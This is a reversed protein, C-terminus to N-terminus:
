KASQAAAKDTIPVTNNPDLLLHAIYKERIRQAKNMIQTDNDTMVRSTPSDVGSGADFLLFAPFVNEPNLYVEEFDKQLRISAVDAGTVKLRTDNLSVAKGLTIDQKGM